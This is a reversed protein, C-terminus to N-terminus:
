GREGHEVLQDGLAKGHQGHRVPLEPRRRLEGILMSEPEAGAIRQM